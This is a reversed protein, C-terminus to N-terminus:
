VSTGLKFFQQTITANLHAICLSSRTIMLRTIALQVKSIELKL